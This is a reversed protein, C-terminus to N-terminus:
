MVRPRQIIFRRTLEDSIPITIFSSYNAEFTDTLWIKGPVQDSIVVMRADELTLEYVDGTLSPRGAQVMPLKETELEGQIEGTALEETQAMSSQGTERAPEEVYKRKKGQIAVTTNERGNQVPYRSSGKLPNEDGLANLIDYIESPWVLPDEPEIHEVVYDFTKNSMLNATWISPAFAVAWSNLGDLNLSCIRECRERTLRKRGKITKSDLASDQPGEFFLRMNRAFVLRGKLHATTILDNIDLRVQSVLKRGEECSSETNRKKLAAVEGPIAVTAKSLRLSLDELTQYQIKSPQIKVSQLTEVFSEVKKTLADLQSVYTSTTM